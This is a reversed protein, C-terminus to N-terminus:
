LDELPLDLLASQKPFELLPAKIFLGGDLKAAFLAISLLSPELAHLLASAVLHRMYVCRLVGGNRRPKKIFPIVPDFASLRTSV